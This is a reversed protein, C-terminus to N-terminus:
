ITSDSAYYDAIFRSPKLFKIKEGPMEKSKACSLHCLRKSNNVAAQLIDRERSIASEGLSIARYDPFFGESLDIIFVSDFANYAFMDPTLLKVSSPLNLNLNEGLHLTYFFTYILWKEKPYRNRFRKWQESWEHLDNEFFYNYYDSDQQPLHFKLDNLLDIFDLTNERSINGIIDIMWDFRTNILIQEVLNDQDENITLEDRELLKCLLNKHVIDRPNNIMKM